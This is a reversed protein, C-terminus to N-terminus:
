QPSEPVFTNTDPKNGLSPKVYRDVLVTGVAVSADHKSMTGDNVSTIHRFMIALTSEDITKERIKKFLTPSEKSLFSYKEEITAPPIRPDNMDNIM